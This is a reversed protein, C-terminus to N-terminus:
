EEEELLTDTMLATYMVQAELRDEETPEPEVPIDPHDAKYADLAEQNVAVATVTPWTVDEAGDMPKDEVTLIAFGMTDLYPTLLEEPLAVAGPRYNSQPNGYNGNESPTANIYYM